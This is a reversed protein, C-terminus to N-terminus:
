LLLMVFIGVTNGIISVITFTSPKVHGVGALLAVGVEDPLPSAIIFGACFFMLYLQMKKSINTKIKQELAKMPKTNEIKEFEDMFSTKVIKFISYDAIFAGLGGILAALYINSPDLTIFLGISIPTTFGYSFLLGAIFVGLYSLNGLSQIPQAILPNKFLLYALLIVLVFLTLKPYKYNFKKKIKQLISPHKEKLHTKIEQISQKM